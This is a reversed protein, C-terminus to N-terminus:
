KWRHMEGKEEPGVFGQKRAEEFYDSQNTVGRSVNYRTEQTTVNYCIVMCYDVADSHTGSLQICDEIAGVEFRKISNLEPFEPTIECLRTYRYCAKDSM